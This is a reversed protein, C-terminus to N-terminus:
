KNEPARKTNESRWQVLTAAANGSEIADKGAEIAELIPVSQEPAIPLCCAAADNRVCINVHRLLPLLASLAGRLTLQHAIAGMETMIRNALATDWAEEADGMFHTAFRRVGADAFRAALQEASMEALTPREPPGSRAKAFLAVLERTPMNAQGASLAALAWEEDTLLFQLGAYFRVDDSDSDCLSRIMEAAGRARLEAGIAKSKEVLAARGATQTPVGDVTFLSRAQKALRVFEQALADETMTALDGSM